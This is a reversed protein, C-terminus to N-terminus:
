KGSNSKEMKILEERCIQAAQFRLKELHSVRQFISLATRALQVNTGSDPAILGQLDDMSKNISLIEDRWSKWLPKIKVRIPEPANIGNEETDKLDETMLHIIPELTNMYYVLWEKRPPLYSAHESIMSDKLELPSHELAPEKTTVLTRTAEMFLNVAQQKVQDLSLRTDRIDSLLEEPSLLGNSRKFHSTLVTTEEAGLASNSSSLLLILFGLAPMRSRLKM